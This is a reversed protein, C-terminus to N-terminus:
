EGLMVRRKGEKDEWKEWMDGEYRVRGEVEGRKRGVGMKRYKGLNGRGVKLHYSLEM